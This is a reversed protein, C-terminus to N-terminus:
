LSSLFIVFAMFSFPGNTIFLAGEWGLLPVTIFSAFAAGLGSPDLNVGLPWTCDKENFNGIQAIHRKIKNKRKLKQSV